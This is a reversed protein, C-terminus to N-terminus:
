IDVDFRISSMPDDPNVEPEDPVFEARFRIKGPKWGGGQIRLVKCPIGSETFWHSSALPPSCFGVAKRAAEILESLKFTSGLGFAFSPDAMGTSVVDENNLNSM